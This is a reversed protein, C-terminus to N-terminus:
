FYTAIQAEAAASLATSDEQRTEADFIAALEQVATKSLNRLDPIQVRKLDNPDFKKLGGAYTRGALGFRARVTSTNLLLCLAKHFAAGEIKPFVCHFNTLNHTDTDNLVFRLDGRGFVAAWIPAAPRKEMSFWPKRMKLLYREDLGEAHGRDIYKAEAESLDASFDVLVVRRGASTLDALHDPGFRLGRADASRGICARRHHSSIGAAHAEAVSLFFFRNCGTAIGRRFSALAGLETWGQPLDSTHGAVTAEWKKEPVLDGPTLVRPTFQAQLDHLSTPVTDATLGELFWANIM